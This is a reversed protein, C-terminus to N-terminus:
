YDSIRIEFKGQDSILIYVFAIVMFFLFGGAGFFLINMDALVDISMVCCIIIIFAGSFSELMFFERQHRKMKKLRLALIFSPIWCLPMCWVVNVEMRILPLLAFALGVILAMDIVLMKEVFAESQDEVLMKRFSSLMGSDDEIIFKEEM